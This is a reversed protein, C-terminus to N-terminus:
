LRSKRRNAVLLLAAAAAAKWPSTKPHVGDRGDAGDAAIVTSVPRAPRPATAPRASATQHAPQAVPQAATETATKPARKHPNAADRAGILRANDEPTMGQGYRTAYVQTFEAGFFFIQASYYIWVLLVVLSGAAGYTSGFSQRGLYVGLLQKGIVFLLATIFAGLWMDRWAVKADPLVRYMMAFLLTIVGLSILFNVVQWLLEGGPLIDAMFAGLASLVASVVLSVLLLFGIALVLSFSLLRDKVTAMIGASPKREVNWIINMAEQLQSFVNSAGWILTALGILGAISRVNPQSANDLMREVVQAGQPGVLGQIQSLLQAQAQETGFVFGAIAVALVLLPAISLMTYFSLSAALRSAKDDSWQRFSERVLTWISIGKM